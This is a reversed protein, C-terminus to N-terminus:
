RFSCLRYGGNGDSALEVHTAKKLANGQQATLDFVVVRHTYDILDFTGFRNQLVWWDSKDATLTPICPDYVMAGMLMFMVGLLGLVVLTFVFMKKNM